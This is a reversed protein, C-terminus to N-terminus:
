YEIIIATASAARELLQIKTYPTGDAKLPVVFAEQKGAIIVEDFNDVKCYDTDSSSWKLYVDKTIAYVKIITTDDNLNIRQSTSLTTNVNRALATARFNVSHLPTGFKDNIIEVRSKAM